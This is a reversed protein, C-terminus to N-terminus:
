TRQSCSLHKMCITDKMHQLKTCYNDMNMKERKDLFELSSHGTCGLFGDNTGEGADSVHQIKKKKPTSHPANENM